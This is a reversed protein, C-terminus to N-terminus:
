GGTCIAYYAPYAGYEAQVHHRHSFYGSVGPISGWNEPSGTRASDSYQSLEGPVCKLIIIAWFAVICENISMTTLHIRLM